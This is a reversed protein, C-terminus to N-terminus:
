MAARDSWGDGECPSVHCGQRVVVMREVHSLHCGQRVAMLGEVHPACSLGVEVGCGGGCACGIFARNSRWRARWMCGRSVCPPPCCLPQHEAIVPGHRGARVRRFSRLSGGLPGGHALPLQHVPPVWLPGELPAAQEHYLDQPVGHLHPVRGGGAQKHDLDQPVGHL